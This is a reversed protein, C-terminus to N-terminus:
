ATIRYLTSPVPAGIKELIVSKLNPLDFENIIVLRIGDRSLAMARLADRAKGETTGHFPGNYELDVNYDPLYFDLKAGGLISGGFRQTQAEFKIKLSKLARTIMSEPVNQGVYTLVEKKTVPVSKKKVSIKARVILDLPPSTFRRM